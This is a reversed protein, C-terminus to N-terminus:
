RAGGLEMASVFERIVPDRSQRFAETPLAALIRGGSLMALRDSVLYAAPLDHTVIVSTVELRRAISQILELIRRTAIPDLGTTPEDYLILEPETALARALAVRKKMGGSLDAPMMAGIGPLGVLDLLEEIRSPIGHPEDGRLRLPYAVNDFVTLSDFLAGGQFLMAVRRRLPLLELEDLGAIEGGDFRISGADPAVLGVLMKLLVSKGSGSAGVITLTEGRAIDLDLDRYIVHDGFSKHVGRLAVFSSTV